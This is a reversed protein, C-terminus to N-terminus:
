ILKARLVAISSDFATLKEFAVSYAPSQPDLLQAETIGQQAATYLYAVKMFERTVRPLLANKELNDIQALLPANNLNKIEEATLDVYVFSETVTGAQTDVVFTTGQPKKGEPAENRAPIFEYWGEAIDKEVKRLTGQSDRLYPENTTHLFQGDKVIAITM